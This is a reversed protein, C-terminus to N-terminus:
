LCQITHFLTGVRSTLELFIGSQTTKTSVSSACRPEGVGKLFITDISCMLPITSGVDFMLDLSQQQSEPKYFSKRPPTKRNSTPDKIQARALVDSTNMTPLATDPIPDEPNVTPKIVIRAEEAGRSLLGRINGQRPIMTKSVSWSTYKPKMIPIPEIPRTRPGTM